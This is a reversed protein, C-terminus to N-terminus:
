RKAVRHSLPWMGDYFFGKFKPSKESHCEVCVSQAPRKALGTRVAPDAAHAAAAGHCAECQVGANVTKGDQEIREKPGTVHCGVCATAKEADSLRDLSRAHKTQAWVKYIEEHCKRCSPAWSYNAATQETAAPAQAAAGARDLAPAVITGAALVALLSTLIRM